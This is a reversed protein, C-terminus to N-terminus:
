SVCLSTKRLGKAHDSYGLQCPRLFLVVNPLIKYKIYREIKRQSTQFCISRINHSLFLTYSAGCPIGDNSENKKKKLLMYKSKRSAECTLYM